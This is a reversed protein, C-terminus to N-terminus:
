VLNIQTTCIKIDFDSTRPEIGSSFMNDEGCFINWTFDPVTTQTTLKTQTIEIKYNKTCLISRNIRWLSMNNVSLPWLDFCAYLRQVDSNHIDVVDQWFIECLVKDTLINWTQQLYKMHVQKANTSVWSLEYIFYAILKM